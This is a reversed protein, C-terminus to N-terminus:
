RVESERTYISASALLEHAIRALAAASYHADFILFAAGFAVGEVQEPAAATGIWRVAARPRSPSSSAAHRDLFCDPSTLVRHVLLRALAIVSTHIKQVRADVVVRAAVIPYNPSNGHTIWAATLILHAKRTGHVEIVSTQARR